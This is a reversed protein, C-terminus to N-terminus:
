DERWQVKQEWSGRNVPLPTQQYHGLYFLGLCSQGESLQFFDELADTSSPTSWYGGIGMATAALWLNEVACATAALEEWEPIRREPDREMCIAIIASARIPNVMLKKRKKELQLHSPTKKEYDSLLCKALNNRAEGTLVIFRWPQTLKHTPAYNAAELMREIDQRSVPLDTFSPPFISLRNRITELVLKCAKQKNTESM